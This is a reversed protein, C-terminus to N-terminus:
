AKILRFVKFESKIDENPIKRSFTKAARALNFNRRWSYWQHSLDVLDFPKLLILGINYSKLNNIAMEMRDVTEPMLREKLEAIRTGEKRITEENTIMFHSFDGKKAILENYIDSEVHGYPLACFNDFVEDVLAHEDRISKDAAVMFFLLKMVKLTSLDNPAEHGAVEKHWDLFLHLSYQFYDIKRQNQM